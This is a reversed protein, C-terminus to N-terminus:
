PKKVEISFNNSGPKVEKTLPTTLPDSYVKAIVPSMDADPGYNAIFKIVVKHKGVVAGKQDGYSLEFSGDKQINGFSGSPAPEGTGDEEEEVIPEFRIVAMDGQPVTGDEFKVTGTVPALEFQPENSSSCGVLLILFFSLLRM